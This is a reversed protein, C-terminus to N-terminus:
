GAKDNSSPGQDNRDFRALNVWLKFTGSWVDELRRALEEVEKVGKFKVFAFKKGRKDVKNPIYVDGVSGYHAFIKWLDGVNFEEPFNSVYFSTSNKDVNNVYGRRKGAGEREEKERM